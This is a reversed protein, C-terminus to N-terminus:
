TRRSHEWVIAQLYEIDIKEANKNKSRNLKTEKKVRFGMDLSKRDARVRVSHIKVVKWKRTDGSNKGKNSSWVTLKGPLVMVNWISKKRRVVPPANDM